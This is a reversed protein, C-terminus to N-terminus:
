QRRNILYQCYIKRCSVLRLVVFIKVSLNLGIDLNNIPSKYKFIDLFGTFSVIKTLSCITNSSTERCDDVNTNLTIQFLHETYAKLIKM